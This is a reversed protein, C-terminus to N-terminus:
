AALVSAVAATARRAAAAPANSRSASDQPSGRSPKPRPSANTRAVAARCRPCTSIRSEARPKM